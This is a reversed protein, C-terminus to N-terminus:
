AQYCNKDTEFDKMDYLIQKKVKNLVNKIDDADPVVRLIKAAMSQFTIMTAIGPSSLELLYIKELIIRFHLSSNEKRFFLEEM